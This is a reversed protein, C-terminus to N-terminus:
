KAENHMNSDDNWDELTERQFYYLVGAHEQFLPLSLATFSRWHQSCHPGADEKWLLMPCAIQIFKKTKKKEQTHMNDM